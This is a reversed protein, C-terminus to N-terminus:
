ADGRCPSRRSFSNTSIVRLADPRRREEAEASRTTSSPTCDLDLRGTDEGRGGRRRHCTKYYGVFRRARRTYKDLNHAWRYGIPQYLLEVDVQLGGGLCKV